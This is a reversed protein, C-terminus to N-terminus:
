CMAFQEFTSARCRNRWIDPCAVFDHRSLWLAPRQCAKAGMVCHDALWGADSGGSTVRHLKLRRNVTYRARGKNSHIPVTFAGAACRWGTPTPSCGHSGPCARPSRSPCPPKAWHAELSRSALSSPRFFIRPSIPSPSGDLLHSHEDAIDTCPSLSSSGEL